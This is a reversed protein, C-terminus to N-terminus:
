LRRKVKEGSLIAETWDSFHIGSSRLEHLKLLTATKEALYDTMEKSGRIRIVRSLIEPSWFLCGFKYPAIDIAYRLCHASQLRLAHDMIRPDNQVSDLNLLSLSECLAEFIETSDHKLAIVFVAIWLENSLSSVTLLKRLLETNLDDAVRRVIVHNHLPLLESYEEFNALGWGDMSISNLVTELTM